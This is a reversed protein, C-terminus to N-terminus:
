KKILKTAIELIEDSRFPKSIYAAAGLRTVESATEGSKNGSVIIVPLEPHANKIEDLVNLGNAQPTNIDLFVLTINKDHSLCDLGQVGSDTLILNYQEDLILKLSERIPEGSGVILIKKPM